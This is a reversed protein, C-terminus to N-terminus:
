GILQAEDAPQEGVKATRGYLLWVRMPTARREFSKRSLSDWGVPVLYILLAATMAFDFSVLGMVCAISLHFLIGGGLLMWKARQRMFIACGLLFELILPIWTLTLVGLASGVIPYIIPRLWGAGFLSSHMWYYMATGNDWQPVGLKAVSSNLYIIAVQTQLLLIAAHAVIASSPIRWASYQEARIWHWRRSDTLLIPLLFLLLDSTVQDGGDQITVSAVFSWAVYWHPIATLRPRWGSAAFLLIVVSVWKAPEVHGHPMMCWLSAAGVSNCYPPTGAGAIPSLLIGAPTALLTTLTGLALLTRVLGVIRTWPTRTLRASCAAGIIEFMKSLM